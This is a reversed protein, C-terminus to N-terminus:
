QAGMFRNAREQLYHGEPFRHWAGGCAPCRWFLVGDYVGRIVVGIERKYHEGTPSDPIPEGQLNVKCHPCESM